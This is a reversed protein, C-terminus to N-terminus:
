NFWIAFNPWSDGFVRNGAAFSDADAVPGDRLFPLAGQGTLLMVLDTETATEFYAKLDFGQSFRWHPLLLKGDLILDLTDLTAHWAAVVEETVTQDPLLSTQSPSPVLERNDDTEALIAEWNQRSLATITKLRDRVNALRASDAVPFDATHIAAIFDAIFGDSEEDLLATGRGRSYDQMPLGAQPFFRHFIANFFRSFDHALLLDAPAATIQTYGALWIADARDFGISTDPLPKGPKTKVKFAEPGLADALVQGLHEGAGVEGDGNIDFRVRLPDIMLVYDGSAGALEFHGRAKDLAIVFDGLITRMGEYTLPEPDPNRMTDPADASIGLLMAAAPVDPASAGHRYLAQSLGQVGDILEILGLGFCADTEDRGCADAFEQRAQPATGEYLRQALSEGTEGAAAFSTLSASLAAAIMLRHM